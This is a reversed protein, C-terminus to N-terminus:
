NVWFMSTLQILALKKMHKVYPPIFKPIIRSKQKAVLLRLKGVTATEIPTQVAYLCCMGNM